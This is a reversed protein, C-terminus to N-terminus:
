TILPLFVPLIHSLVPHNAGRANGPQLAIFCLDAGGTPFKFELVTNKVKM